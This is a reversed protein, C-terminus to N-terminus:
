LTLAALELDDPRQTGIRPPKVLGLAAMVRV